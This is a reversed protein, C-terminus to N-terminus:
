YTRPIVLRKKSSARRATPGDQGAGVLPRLVECAAPHRMSQAIGPLSQQSLCGTEEAVYRSAIWPRRHCRRAFEERREAGIAGPAAQDDVKLGHGSAPSPLRRGFAIVQCNLDHLFAPGDGGLTNSARRVDSSYGRFFGVGGWSLRKSFRM